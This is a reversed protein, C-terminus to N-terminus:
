GEFVWIVAVAVWLILVALAWRAAAIGRANHGEAQAMGGFVMAPITLIPFVVGVMVLIVALDAWIGCLTRGPKSSM